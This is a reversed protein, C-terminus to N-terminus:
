SEAAATWFDELVPYPEPSTMGVQTLLIAVANASPIVHASTGTGGVWGYRGPINWPNARNLDVSGGFGWGQGDLFLDSGARQRADVQNTLLQRVSEASLVSGGGSLLMRGFRLWDDATGLLGGGLSEFAPATEWIAREDGPRLGDETSLYYSAFRDRKSAPLVFSTDTMGLPQFLREALFDELRQGSVRAILVGLIDSAAGYLWKEGPQAVMPIRAMAAIYDDPPLFEHPRRGDIQVTFLEQIAPLSFDSPFGWGPTSTLLHRLTLPRALPVVDDLAADPTRVVRAEAVEPLWRAVPEDLSIRGDEVLIMAATAGIPKTISAIRFITDRRMPEPADLRMSGVAVADVDDGRALLTVAGPMSG